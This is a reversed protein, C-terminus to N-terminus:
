SVMKLQDSMSAANTLAPAAWRQLLEFDLINLRRGRVKIVGALSLKKIVRSVSASSMELYAAIHCRDMGLRIDKANLKQARLRNSLNLIFGAVRAPSHARSVSLLLERMRFHEKTLTRLVVASLDSSREMYTKIEAVPIECVRCDELVSASYGYEGSAVSSLGVIDGPLFFDAVSKEEARQKTAMVSGFQIVSVFDPGQSQEFLVDGKSLSRARVLAGDAPCANQAVAEM